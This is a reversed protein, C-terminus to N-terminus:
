KPKMCGVKRRWKEQEGRLKALTQNRFARAETEHYMNSVRWVVELELGVLILPSWEAQVRSGADSLWDAGKGSEKFEGKSM